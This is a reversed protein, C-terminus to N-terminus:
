PDSLFPLSIIFKTGADVRSTVSIDGKMERIIGYSISLGLGTGDLADKTTYFPDFIHKLTDETMGSGNDEIEIIVQGDEDYTSIGIIKRESLGTNESGSELAHAANSLINLIVQELKYTNGAVVGKSKLVTNIEIGHTKLQTQMLSLADQIPTDVNVHDSKVSKRDRSFTRVHDIIRKIRDIGASIADCKKELDDNSVPQNDICKLLLSDNAIVIRTLPQNIEHAIGAALVGLSALHASRAVETQLKKMESIDRLVHVVMKPNGDDDRAAVSTTCWFNSKEGADTEHRIEAERTQGTELCDKIPCPTDTTFVHSFVEKYNKGVPNMGVLQAVVDNVWVITGNKDIMSIADTLAVIVGALKEESRRVAEQQANREAGYRGVLLYGLIVFLFSLGWPYFLLDSKIFFLGIFMDMMGTLGFIGFAISMMVAERDGKLATSILQFESITIGIIGAIMSLIFLYEIVIPITILLPLTILAFVINLRSMFRFFPKFGVGTVSVFFSWISANFIFFVIVRLISFLTPYGFLLLTMNNEAALLYLGGSFAMISFSFLLPNQRHYIRVLFICALVGIIMYLIGLVTIYLDGLLFHRWLVNRDGMFINFYLGISDPAESYFRFSITKGYYDDPLPILHWSVSNLNNQFCPKMKGYGYIRKEGLYVEFARHVSFRPIFLAANPIPNENLRRKLWLFTNGNRKKRAKEDFPKWASETDTGIFAGNQDTPFDGWHARWGKFKDIQVIKQAPQNSDASAVAAGASSVSIIGIDSFVLPMQVLGFILFIGAAIGLFYKYAYDTGTM